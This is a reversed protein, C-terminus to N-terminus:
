IKTDNFNLTLADLSVLKNLNLENVTNIMTSEGNLDLACLSRPLNKGM